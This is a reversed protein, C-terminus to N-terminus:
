DMNAHILDRTPNYNFHWSRVWHGEAQAKAYIAGAVEYALNEIERLRTIETFAEDCFGDTQCAFEYDRRDSRAAEYTNEAKRYAIKAAHASKFPTTKM